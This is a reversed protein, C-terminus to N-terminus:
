IRVRRRATLGQDKPVAHQPLTLPYHRILSNAFSESFGYSLIRESLGFVVGDAKSEREEALLQIAKGM